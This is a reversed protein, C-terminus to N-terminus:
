TCKGECLGCGCHRGGERESVRLNNTTFSFHPPGTYQAREGTSGSVNRKTSTFTGLEPLPDCEQWCGLALRPLIGARPVTEFYNLNEGAMTLVQEREAFTTYHAVGGALSPSSEGM